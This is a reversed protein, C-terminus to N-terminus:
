EELVVAASEPGLTIRGDTKRWTTDDVTRYRSPSGKGELRVSVTAPKKGDYNAIVLARKGDSARLFVSYPHHPSGDKDLVTAGVTDRFQGDWLYARLESRLADMKRGYDMTDPFDSLNGKFNFPEYSAVYRYLLCQNIMNRDNFGTIATMILSHPRLYRMLPVHNRSWSRHYSLSYTELEWDYCAEGAFMFSTTRKDAIERFRQILLRDNAYVPAGYRHGHSLDFCLLAQGHHQCEDYLIGDPELDLVKQFERDCLTLYSASLFCMPVLRKTNIDLLQTSTQYQYGQYVYYDGYPDKIADSQLRMRFDKTARDAWTFKSFLVVKVGLAQIEKIAKKLDDFTGLRPDPDHSPNGQDQGGDNWGVLQIARVGHKACEEGIEVLNAFRRRLEDEPSNIHIQQWSHPEEAWAPTKPKRSWTDRWKTYIDAGTHWSGAFARCMIPTLERSEKPAIFPVHVAAFRVAVDKGAITAGDPVRSDISSAYGPHLETQWAVLEASPRAVGVYLGESTSGLLIFPSMPAGCYAVGESVQTPFDTGYYGRLNDYIPRLGWQQATGYHYLFAKIVSGPARQPGVDGLFPYCANEVFYPSGNEIKMSFSIDEESADVRCEVRIPVQEGTSLRLGDWQLTVSKGEKEQVVPASQRMGDAVVNRRGSGHWDEAARTPVLLQFSLGVASRDLIRWGTEVNEIRVLAGTKTDLEVRLNRNELAIRTSSKM